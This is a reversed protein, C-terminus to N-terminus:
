PEAVGESDDESDADLLSQSSAANAPLTYQGQGVRTLLGAQVMRSMNTGVANSDERGLQHAVETPSLGRPSSAVVRLIDRREPSLRWRKVPDGNAGPTAVPIEEMDPDAGEPEPRAPPGDTPSVALQELQRLLTLEQELAAIRERVGKRPMQALWAQYSDM